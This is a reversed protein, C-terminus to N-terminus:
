ENTNTTVDNQLPLQEMDSILKRDIKFLYISVGIFFLLFIILSIVLFLDAGEVYGLIRGM